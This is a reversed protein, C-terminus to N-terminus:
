APIAGRDSVGHVQPTTAATYALVYYTFIDNADRIFMYHGAADTVGTKCLFDDMQRFLKVTTGAPATTGTATYITGSIAKTPVLTPIDHPISSQVKAFSTKRSLPTSQAVRTGSLHNVPTIDIFPTASFNAM